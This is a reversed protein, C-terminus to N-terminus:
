TANITSWFHLASCFFFMHLHSTDFWSLDSLFLFSFIFYFIIDLDFCFLHFSMQNIRRREEEEEEKKKESPFAWNIKEFSLFTHWMYKRSLSFFSICLTDNKNEVRCHTDRIQVHTFQNFETETTQNQAWAM